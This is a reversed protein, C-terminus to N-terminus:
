GGFEALNKTCLAYYGSPVSYEFNGYGNADANGSSISFAPNGFNFSLRYYNNGFDGGAAYYFGTTPSSSISVATGSNQVTGNKYFKLENDTLNLAVGIIDNDGFTDGYTSESNNNRVKGTHGRYGYDADYNGLEDSSNGTPSRSAVGIMYENNGSHKGACLVEFYWKGNAVGITSLNVCANGSNATEIFCNGESFTSGAFYNDLPNMTAFNNTCTDTTQDVSTLNEVAFHNDNGSTDAGLGSSNQSTGSQQFQLYFGNTGFTLGSIDIPKWINPSDTDFEGFDSPNLASGDIFAVESLYGDYYSNTAVSSRGIKCINALNMGGEENQAPYVRASFSTEETGNIYLRMRDAETSQTTDVKFLLHVWASPDRFVRNTLITSNTGGSGDFYIRLQDNDFQFGYHGGNNKWGFVRDTGSAINKSRKMWMSMTLTRRNGAGSFTRTLADTSASDFRLSNAVNYTFTPTSPAPYLFSNIPM